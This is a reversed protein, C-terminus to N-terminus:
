SHFLEMQPLYFLFNVKKSILNLCDNEISLKLYQSGNTNRIFFFQTDLQFFFQIGLLKWSLRLTFSVFANTICEGLVYPKKKDKLLKLIIFSIQMLFNIQCCHSFEYKFIIFTLIQVCCNILKPMYKTQRKLGSTITHQGIYVM